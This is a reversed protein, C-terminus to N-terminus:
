CTRFTTEIRESGIKEFAERYSLAKGGTRDKRRFGIVRLLLKHHTTRLRGFNLSFTTGTACGYLMAEVVEAKSLKIKLSWRVNWRDYLQSIFRRVSAWAAGIRREIETYHDVSESIAGGLYVFESTHKYLQGTAEILLANSARSPDFWLYTAEAKKEEHRTHNTNSCSLCTKTCMRHAFM